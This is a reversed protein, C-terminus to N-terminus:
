EVVSKDALTIEIDKKTYERGDPVYVTFTVTDGPKYYSMEEILEDATSIEYDNVSVIVSGATIGMEDAPSSETVNRVYAGVPINYYEATTADVTIATIGLYGREDDDYKDRNELNMLKSIVSTADSIPIAYGMGEVSTSTSSSSSSKAVNIGIVEGKMNILAGGSNGGNIAADTQLVVMDNSDITITRNKASIYGVTVSQGYGLANGIAVVGDGVELENSDGLTAIKIEKLTDEDIDELPIAVVAIDNSASTGKVYATDVSQEDVFKVSLSVTDEVVHNNTVILLETDNQGIIIGSGAGEVQYQGGGFFPNYNQEVISTNTIAVVSPMVLKAIDAVSYATDDSLGTTSEGAAGEVTGITNTSLTTGLQINGASSDSELDLSNLVGYLIGSNVLVTIIMFVIGVSIVKGMTVPKKQKKIKKKKSSAKSQTNMEGEPVQYYTYQPKTNTNVNENNDDTQYINDDM